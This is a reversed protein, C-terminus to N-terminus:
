TEDIDGAVKTVKSEINKIDVKAEEMDKQSFRLSENPDIVEKRIGRVESKVIEFFMQVMTKFSKEQTELHERVIPLTVYQSSGTM